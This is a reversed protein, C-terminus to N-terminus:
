RVFNVQLGLSKLSPVIPDDTTIAGGLICLSNVGGIKPTSKSESSSHDMMEFGKLTFITIL